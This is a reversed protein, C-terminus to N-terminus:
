TKRHDEIQQLGFRAAVIASTQMTPAPAAPMTSATSSARRPLRTRKSSPPPELDFFLRLFRIAAFKCAQVVLADVGSAEAGLSAGGALPAPLNEFEVGQIELGPRADRAAAPGKGLAVRVGDVFPREMEFAEFLDLAGVLGDPSLDAQRWRGEVTEFGVERAPAGFRVKGTKM